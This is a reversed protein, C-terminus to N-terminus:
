STSLGLAGLIGATFAADNERYDGTHDSAM